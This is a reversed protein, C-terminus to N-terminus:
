QGTIELGSVFRDIIPRSEGILNRSTWGLLQITGISGTYVHGYFVFPIGKLTAEMELWTVLKGNVTRTGQRTLRADPAAEKANSLVFDLVNKSPIEFREAMLSIFVSHDYYEFNTRGEATEANWATNDFRLLARGGVLPMVELRGVRPTFLPSAAEPVLTSSKLADGILGSLEDSLSAVELVVAELREGSLGALDIEHLAVLDGSTDIAAKVLDKEFNIRLLQSM